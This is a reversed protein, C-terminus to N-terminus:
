EPTVGGYRVNIKDAELVDGVMTGCVRVTMGEVLEGFTIVRKVKNEAITIVTNPTAQVTTGNDLTIESAGSDITEIIGTTNVFGCEGKVLISSVLVFCLVTIWVNRMKRM